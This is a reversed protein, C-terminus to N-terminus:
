IQEEDHAGESVDNSSSTNTGTLICGRKELLKLLDERQSDSFDLIREVVIEVPSLREKWKRTYAGQYYGPKRLNHPWHACSPIHRKDPRVKSARVEGELNMKKSLDNAVDRFTPGHGDYSDEDVELVEHQYQHIMEHLLVDAILRFRGESFQGGSQVHPHTGTLLSRRIKIEARGGFDSISGYSGYARNTDSIGFSIYPPAPLASDLLKDNWEEWLSYLKGLHKRYFPEAQSIVFERFRERDNLIEKSIEMQQIPVAM